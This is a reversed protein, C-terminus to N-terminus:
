LAKWDALCGWFCGKWRCGWTICTICTGPGVQSLMAFWMEIPEATEACNV